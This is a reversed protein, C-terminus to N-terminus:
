APKARVGELVASRDLLARVEVNLGIALGPCGQAIRAADDLHHAHVILYGGVVEKAEAYPGDTIRDGAPGSVVKGELGLPHGQQLQGRATLEEVWRNWREALADREAPTLHAHVDEGANRFLLLYPSTM